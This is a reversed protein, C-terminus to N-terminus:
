RRDFLRYHKVGQLMALVWFLFDVSGRITASVMILNPNGGCILKVWCFRHRLMDMLCTCWFHPCTCIYRLLYMIHVHIMNHIPTPKFDNPDCLDYGWGVRVLKHFWRGERFGVYGRLILKRKIHGIKQHLSNTEPLEPLTTGGNIKVEWGWWELYLLALGEGGFNEFKRLMLTGRFIRRRLYLCVVTSPFFGAGTSITFIQNNVPHWVHWTTIAPNRGDITHHSVSVFNLFPEIIQLINVKGIRHRCCRMTSSWIMRSRTSKSVALLFGGFCKNLWRRTEAFFCPTPSCKFSKLLFSALFATLTQRRCTIVGLSLNSWTDDDKTSPIDATHRSSAHIFHNGNFFCPFINCPHM